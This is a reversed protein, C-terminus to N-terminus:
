DNGECTCKGKVLGREPEIVGDNRKFKSKQHIAARQEENKSVAAVAASFNNAFAERATAPISSPYIVQTAVGGIGFVFDTGLAPDYTIPSSVINRTQQTIPTAAKPGHSTLSIKSANAGTNKKRSARDSKVLANSAASNRGVFGTARKPDLGQGNPTKSGSEPRTTAQPKALRSMLTKLFTAM